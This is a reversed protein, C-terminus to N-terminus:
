GELSAVFREVTEKFSSAISASIVPFMVATMFGKSGVTMAVTLATESGAPEIDIEIAGDLQESDIDMVMRQGAVHATRAATGSYDRGGVAAIFRYGILDGQDDFSPSDVKSVGGIQAWSEPRQLAQWVHETSASAEAKHVFSQRPM